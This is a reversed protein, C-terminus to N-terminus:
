HAAGADRRRPTYLSALRAVLIAVYFVGVLQEVNAVARAYTSKPFIDGFGTTTLTTVSFYILDFLDVARASDHPFSIYFSGPYLTEVEMYILGFSLAILLYACIAGCIKDANVPGADLVHRLLNIAIFGYFALAALLFLPQLSIEKKSLLCWQGIIAPVFLVVASVLTRRSGSTSYVALILMTSNLLNLTLRGNATTELFPHALIMLVLLILLWVCAGGRAYRHTGAKPIGSHQETM